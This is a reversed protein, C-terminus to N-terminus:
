VLPANKIIDREVSNILKPSFSGYLFLMMLFYSFEHLLKHLTLEYQGGAGNIDYKKRLPIMWNEVNVWKMEWKVHQM